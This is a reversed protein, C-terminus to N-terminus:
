TTGGGLANYRGERGSPSPHSPHGTGRGAEAARNDAHVESGKKGTGDGPGRDGRDGLGLLM